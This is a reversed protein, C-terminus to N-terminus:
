VKVGFSLTILKTSRHVKEIAIGIHNVAQHSEYDPQQKCAVSPLLDETERRSAVTSRLASEHYETGPNFQRATKQNRETKEGSDSCKYRTALHRYGVEHSMRGASKKWDNIM